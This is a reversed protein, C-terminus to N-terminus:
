LKPRRSTGGEEDVVGQEPGLAIMDIPQADIRDGRHEVAIVAALAAVPHGVILAPAFVPLRDIEQARHVAGDIGAV